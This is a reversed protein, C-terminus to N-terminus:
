KRGRTRPPLGLARRPKKARNLSSVPTVAARNAADSRRKYVDRVIKKEEDPSM